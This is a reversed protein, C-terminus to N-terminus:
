VPAIPDQTETGFFLHLLAIFSGVLAILIAADLLWVFLPVIDAGSAEYSM